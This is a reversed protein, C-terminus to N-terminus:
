NSKILTVNLEDEAFLTQTSNKAMPSFNLTDYNQGITL